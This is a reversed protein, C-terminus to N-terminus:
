DTNSVDLTQAFRRNRQRCAFGEPQWGERAFVPFFGQLGVCVFDHTLNRGQQWFAAAAEIGFM